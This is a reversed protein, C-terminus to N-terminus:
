DIYVPIEFFYNVIAEAVEYEVIGLNTYCMLHFGKTNELRETLEVIIDNKNLQKSNSM